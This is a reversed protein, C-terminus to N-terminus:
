NKEHLVSNRCRVHWQNKLLKLRMAVIIKKKQKRIPKFTFKRQNLSDCKDHHCAHWDCSYNFHTNAVRVDVDHPKGNCTAPIPRKKEKDM